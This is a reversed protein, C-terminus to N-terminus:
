SRSPVLVQILLYKEWFNKTRFALSCRSQGYTYRLPTVMAGRKEPQNPSQFTLDRDKYHKVEVDYLQQIAGVCDTRVAGVWSPDDICVNHNTISMLGGTNSHPRNLTAGSALAPLLLSIAFFKRVFNYLRPEAMTDLSRKVPLSLYLHTCIQQQIIGFEANMTLYGNRSSVFETERAVRLMLCRRAGARLIGWVIAASIVGWARFLVIPIGLNRKEYPSLALQRMEDHKLNAHCSASRVHCKPYSTIALIVNSPAKPPSTVNPHAKPQWKSTDSTRYPRCGGSRSSKPTPDM